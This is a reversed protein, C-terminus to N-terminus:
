RGFTSKVSRPVQNFTIIDHTKSLRSVLLTLPQGGYYKGM